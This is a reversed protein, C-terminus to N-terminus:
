FDALISTLNILEVFFLQNEFFDFLRKPHAAWARVFWFPLLYFFRVFYFYTLSIILFVYLANFCEGTIPRVYYIFDTDTALFPSFNATVADPPRRVQMIQAIATATPSYSHTLSKKENWNDTSNIVSRYKSQHHKFLQLDSTSEVM